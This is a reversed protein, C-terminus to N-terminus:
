RAMAAQLARLTPVPGVIVISHAGVTVAVEKDMWGSGTRYRAAGRSGAVPAYGLAGLTEDLTRALLRAEFRSTLELRGPLVALMPAVGGALVPLVIFPLPASPDLLHFAVILAPLGLALTLAFRAAGGAPSAAVRVVQSFTVSKM